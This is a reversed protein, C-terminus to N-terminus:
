QGKNKIIEKLISQPLLDLRLALVFYFLFCALWILSIELMALPLSHSVFESYPLLWQLGKGVVGIFLALLVIKVWRAYDIPFRLFRGFLFAFLIFASFESILTALAAGNYSYVPILILNLFLNIFVAVGAVLVVQKQRKLAVAMQSFGAYMFGGIIAFALLWLPMVSESFSEGGIIKVMYPAYLFIFIALPWAALWLMNLSTRFFDAWQNKQALEAFRPYVVTIFVAPLMVFTQFIRYAASYIGVDQAPKMLSLLVTDLRFHMNGLIYAFGLVLSDALFARLFKSDWGLRLQGGLKRFSFFMWVTELATTFFLLVFLVLLSWHFLATLVVILLFSGRGIMEGWASLDLRLNIQPLSTFFTRLVYISNRAAEIIIALKVVKEYPMFWGALAIVLLVLASSILRWTFVNALVERQRQPKQSLERVLIHYVGLDGLVSLLGVFGIATNYRGYGDPGLYRTLIMATAISVLVSFFRSISQALTNLFVRRSYSM